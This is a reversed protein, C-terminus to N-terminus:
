HSHMIGRFLWPQRRGLMPRNINSVVGRSVMPGRAVYHFTRLVVFMLLLQAQKSRTDACIRRVKTYPKDHEDYCHLVEYPSTSLQLRISDYSISIAKNIQETDDLM